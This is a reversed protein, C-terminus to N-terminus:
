GCCRTLLMQPRRRASRDRLRRRRNGSTTTRSFRGPFSRQSTALHHHSTRPGQCRKEDVLKASSGVDYLVMATCVASTITTPPPTMPALMAHASDLRHAPRTTTRSFDKRPAPELPFDPAIM